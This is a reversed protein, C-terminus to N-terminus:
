RKKAKKKGYTEDGEHLLTKMVDHFNGNIKLPKEYHKARKKRPKTKIRM